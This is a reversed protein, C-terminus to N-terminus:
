ALCTPTSYHGRRDQGQGVGDDLLQVGGHEALREDGHPV